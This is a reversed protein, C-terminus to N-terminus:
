ARLRRGSARSGFMRGAGSNLGSFDVASGNLRKIAAVLADNLDDNAGNPFFLIGQRSDNHLKDWLHSRVMVRGSEAVPTVQRTESIKDLSKAVEIASIGNARLTQAASKGSAKAEIYHTGKREKMYRILDPFELWDWGLDDIWIKGDYWGATVYASASNREERTYALDWDTGYNVLKPPWWDTPTIWKQWIGGDIPAPHQLIQGAYGYSGLDAKLGDLVSRSFRDPFMLGDTYKDRLEGPSVYPTVEGPINIHHVPVGKSKMHATMDRESLRQMIIIRVDVAPDNLRTSLTRDYWTNAVDNLQASDAQKPNVPDDVIIINGGQGTLTGGVSTARRSGGKDNTFRSKVNQDSSLAFVNGWKAQYWDSQILRRTDVAHEIALDGSYSATLFKLHPYKTWVWANLCVTTIKSKLSRPQINVVIDHQKTRKGVIREVEAQLVDCLYDIHWNWTIKDEPDLVALAYRLFDRYHRESRTRQVESLTPLNM